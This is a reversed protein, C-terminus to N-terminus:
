HDDLISEWLVPKMAFKVFALRARLLPAREILHEDIRVGYETSELCHAEAPKGLWGCTSLGHSQGGNRSLDGADLPPGM